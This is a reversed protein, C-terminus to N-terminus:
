PVTVKITASKITFGWGQKEGFTTDASTEYGVYHATLTHTGVGKVVTRLDIELEYQEGPLLTVPGTGEQLPHAVETATRKQILRPLIKTFYSSAEGALRLEIGYNVGLPHYATVRFPTTGTNNVAIMGLWPKGTQPADVKLECILSEVIHTFIWDFLRATSVTEPASIAGHLGLTVRTGPVFGVPATPAAEDKLSQRLGLTGEALTVVVGGSQREVLFRCPVATPQLYVGAVKIHLRDAQSAYVALTGQELALVDQAAALVTAGEKMRVDAASDLRLALGAAGAEIREGEYLTGPTEDHLGRYVRAVPTNKTPKGNTLPTETGFWSSWQDAVVLALIASAILVGLGGIWFLRGQPSVAPTPVYTARSEEAFRKKLENLIRRSDLMVSPSAEQKVMEFIGCHAEFEHRCASCQEIHARLKAAEEEPLAGIALFPIDTRHDACPTTTNAEIESM